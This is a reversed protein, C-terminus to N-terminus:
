NELLKAAESWSLGVTAVTGANGYLGYKLCVQLGSCTLRVASRASTKEVIEHLVGSKRGKGATAPM